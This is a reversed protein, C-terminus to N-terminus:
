MGLRVLTEILEHVLGYLPLAAIPMLLALSALARTIRASPAHAPRLLQRVRGEVEDLAVAMTLTHREGSGCDLIRAVKILASALEVRKNPDDGTARQDAAFEAETRWCEALRAGLATWGLIDPCALLLLLKLNDRAAVHAAEHALVQRFEGPSCATVVCEAAVVQPRWAGIVGILPKAIDVVRVRQGNEVLCRKGPGCARLLSRAASCARRGRWLGHGLVLLAFAALLLLLPGVTEREQHPEYNVFAPLAITLAILLAGGAPLLRLALLDASGWRVRKLGSHWVLAVLGALLLSALGYTALVVIGLMLASTM